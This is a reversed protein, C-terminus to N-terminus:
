YLSDISRVPPWYKSSLVQLWCHRETSKSLAKISSVLQERCCGLIFWEISAISSFPRTRARQPCSSLPLRKSVQSAYKSYSL